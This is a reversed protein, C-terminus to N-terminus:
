EAILPPGLTRRVVRPYRTQRVAGAAVGQAAMSEMIGLYRNRGAFEIRRPALQTLWGVTNAESMRRTWELTGVARIQWTLAIVALLAMTLRRGRPAAAAGHAVAARLAGYAALAYFPVAMGSLRDRSYKISLVGCAALAVVLAVAVRGDETWGDRRLGRLAGRAWWAITATLAVSSVVHVAEWPEVQAYAVDRSIFFLGASPEAVLANLITSMANYAYMGYPFDGFRALADGPELIQFGFGMSQEFVPWNGSYALRLGIYGAAAAAVAAALSRTAGPARTWWAAAVVAAIVLGQEKFGIALLTLGVVAPATWPRPERTLLMWAGLAMPMGVLTMLLPIELNERFGPSGVLVALATVAAAADTPTRPRLQWLFLLALLLPAAVEIGKFVELARDLSGTWRWLRDWTLFYLPRYWARATLDFLAFVPTPTGAPVDELIAITENVPYPTRWMSGALGALLPLSLVLVLFFWRAGAGREGPSSV